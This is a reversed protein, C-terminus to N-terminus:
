STRAVLVRFLNLLRYGGAETRYPECRQLVAARVAVPGARRGAARGLASAFLPGLLEDEDAYEFPCVVEDLRAVRLGAREALARLRGPETVPPAPSPRRPGLWPALAEGFARVDCEQERGWVTAVVLPGSRAAGALVGAPDAVHMLLQVAAVVDFPGAPPDHADRVAFAGGPVEAAARAVAAPDTDIGTVRAGRDAAARAFRGAGCGLDLLRTGPGVAAADLVAAHLPAGWGRPGEGSM